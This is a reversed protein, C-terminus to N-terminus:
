LYLAGLGDDERITESRKPQLGHRLVNWLVDGEWRSGGVGYLSRDLAVIEPGGTGLRAALASLGRPPDDPWEARALDLLAAAAARRDNAVCAHHLAKIADKKRPLRVTPTAVRDPVLGRRRSRRILALWLIMMALLGAGAAVWPWHKQLRDTLSASQRPHDATTTMEPSTKQAEAGVPIPSPASSQGAAAGAEVKFERAPLAALSPTNSRANWWALEVPPIGLTGQATPIYTVSQKSTGYIAEGDTRSQNDSAEPYLRANAPLALSLSPIQSAALGKVDVTITRTAPVGVKFQPPNDEWSDHLTVQEAPLWTGQAAAPRPLVNLTIEQSRVAVPQEADGFASGAGLRGRFIPDNAFPTNRLFRDM